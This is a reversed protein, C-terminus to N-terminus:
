KCKKKKCRGSSCEVNRKCAKGKKKARLCSGKSCYSGARCTVAFCSKRDRCKGAVCVLKKKCHKGLLCPAGVRGRKRCKRKFCVLGGQCIYGKKGCPAGAREGPVFCMPSWTDHPSRCVAKAHCCKAGQKSTGEIRCDQKLKACPVQSVSRYCRYVKLGRKNGPTWLCKDKSCCTGKSKGGVQCIKGRKICKRGAEAAAGGLLFFFFSLFLLSKKYM